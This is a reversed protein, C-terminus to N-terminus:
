GLSMGHACRLDEFFQWLQAHAVTGLEEGSESFKVFGVQEFTASWSKGFTLREVFGQSLELAVRARALRPAIHKPLDAFRARSNPQRM